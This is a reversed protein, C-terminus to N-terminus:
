IGEVESLEEEDREGTGEDIIELPEYARAYVRGRGTLPKIEVSYITEGGDSLQVVAHETLGGPFFFISGKGSQKPEADHPTILKIIQVRRGLAINSYKKTENGQKDTLAGFPSAGLTPKFTAQLRARAAAWPDVEAGRDPAADSAEMRRQDNSRALNVQGHAEEIALTNGPIAFSVRVTTGRILARNYAFRVASLMQNCGSKLDTRGWAGFGFGVGGVALGMMVIVSMIEILTVGSRSDKRHGGNGPSAVFFIGGGHPMPSRTRHVAACLPARLREQRNGPDAM